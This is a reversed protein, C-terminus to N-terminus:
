LQFMGALLREATAAEIDDPVVAGTSFFMLPLEPHACHSNMLSGFSLCQDMYTINVGNCFAQYKSLIKRNYIESHIGSITVIFEIQDFSRKLTEIFKRSENEEKFDLRLDLIVSIGEEKAKRAESMLLSLSTVEVMDLKFIKSTFDSKGQDLERQRFRIIRVNEQIVALKIALSMQGCSNESILATVSRKAEMASFHPMGVNILESLERLAFEYIIDSDELDEPTMEFNAKKIIKQIIKEELELSRLTLRLDILGQAEKKESASNQTMRETLEFLKQELLEIHHRQSKIEGQLSASVENVRKKESEIEERYSIEESNREELLVETKLAERAPITDRESIFQELSTTQEEETTLFEDLSHQIKKSAKSVTNVVKNLGLNGYNPKTGSAKNFSNISSNVQKAPANYFKDRQNEDLVKDVKAKKTYNQESIAATIEIKRKKFAGKLGKNTVTKLIIADPGLEKKVARLTEDLTDGEFKRVYM